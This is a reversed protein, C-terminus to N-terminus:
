RTIGHQANLIALREEVIREATDILHQANEVALIRLIRDRDPTRTTTTGYLEFEVPCPQSVYQLPASRILDEVTSTM